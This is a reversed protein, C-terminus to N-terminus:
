VAAVKDGVRHPHPRQVRRMLEMLAEVVRPDFTGSETGRQIESLAADRELRERYPRWSTLADYTDAVAVIRAGFPIADGSLGFPYGGGNYMEHHYLITGLINASEYGMNRVIAAGEVPHREIEKFENESLRGARNLIHHTISEKGIDSLYAAILIDQKDAEDMGLHDAIAYSLVAVMKSRGISGDLAEIPLMVDEPTNILEEVFRYKRYYNILPKCETHRRDVTEM